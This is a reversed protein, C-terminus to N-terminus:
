SASPLAAHQCHVEDLRVALRDLAGDAVLADIEVEIRKEREIGFHARGFGLDLPQAGLAIGDARLELVRRGFLLGLKAALGLFGACLGGREFALQGALFGLELRQHQLKGPDGVFARGDPGVLAEVDDDAGDALRRLEIELREVM